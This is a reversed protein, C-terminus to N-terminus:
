EIEEPKTSDTKNEEPKSPLLIGIPTNWKQNNRSSHPTEATKGIRLPLYIEKIFPIHLYIPYINEDNKKLKGRITRM